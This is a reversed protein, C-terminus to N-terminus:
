WVVDDRLPNLRQPDINAGSQYTVEGPTAVGPTVVPSPYASSYLTSGSLTLDGSPMGDAADFSFLATLTQGQAVPLVVMTALFTSGAVLVRWRQPYRRLM